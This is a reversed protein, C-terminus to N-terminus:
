VILGEAETSVGFSVFDQFAHNDPRMGHSYQYGVEYLIFLIREDPSTELYLLM